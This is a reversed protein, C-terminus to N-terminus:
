FQRLRLILSYALYWFGRVLLWIVKKSLLILTEPNRKHKGCTQAAHLNENSQSRIMSSAAWLHGANFDTPQTFGLKDRSEFECLWLTFSAAYGLVLIWIVKEVIINVGDRNWAAAADFPAAADPPLAAAFFPSQRFFRSSNM